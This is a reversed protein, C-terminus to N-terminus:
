GIASGHEGQAPLFADRVREPIRSPRGSAGDVFAWTTVARAVEAGNAVLRTRRLSTVGTWSEIWTELTVVDDRLASRLYDIEHRRVVFHAGLDRFADVGLGVATSHAIAADQIWRVYSINSAHGLMDIDEDAVVREVCHVNSARSPESM